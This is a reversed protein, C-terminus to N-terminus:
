PREVGDHPRWRSLRRREEEVRTAIRMLRFIRGRRVSRGFLGGRQLWFGGEHFRASHQLGTFSLRLVTVACGEAALAEARNRMAGWRSWHGVILPGPRAAPVPQQPRYPPPTAPFSALSAGRSLGDEMGAALSRMLPAIRFPDLRGDLMMRELRLRQGRAFDKLAARTEPASLRGHRRLFHAQSAGIEHLSRPAGSASRHPGADLGHQVVADPAVAMGHGAEQLRLCLDTEDLYYRFAEDFGEVAVVAARLMACNTGHVRAFLGPPAIALAPATGSHPLPHARGLRDTAEPQWQRSIGNRGLVPGGAIAAGTTALAELLRALWTPEPVADDDCFAVVAGGAAAIGRNRAASLNPTEFVVHLADPSAEAIIGAQSRPAVVVIEFGPLAQFRLARLVRRLGAPRGNSCIVVSATPLGTGGGSM